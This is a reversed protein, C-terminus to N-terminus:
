PAQGVKWGDEPAVWIYRQNLTPQAVGDVTAEAVIADGEHRDRVCANRGEMPAIATSLQSRIAQAMVATVPGGDLAM